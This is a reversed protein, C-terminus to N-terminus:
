RLGPVASPDTIERPWFSAELREQKAIEAIIKRGDIRGASQARMLYSLRLRWRYWREATERGIM